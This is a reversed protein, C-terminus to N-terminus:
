KKSESMVDIIDQQEQKFEQYRDRVIEVTFDIVMLLPAIFFAGSQNGFVNAALIGLVFYAIFRKTFLEMNTFNWKLFYYLKKM